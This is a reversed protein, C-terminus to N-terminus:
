NLAYKFIYYILVSIRYLMRKLKKNYYRQDHKLQCCLTFYLTYMLVMRFQTYHLIDSTYLIVCNDYFRQHTFIVTSYHSAGLSVVFQSHFPYQFLRKVLPPILIISIPFATQRSWIACLVLWLSIPHNSNNWLFHLAVHHSRRIFCVDRLTRWLFNAIFAGEFKFILNKNKCMDKKRDQDCAWRKLQFRTM